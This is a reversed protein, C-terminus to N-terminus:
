LKKGRLRLANTVVFISSLSMALAGIMPSLLLGLSPYLIGAAIPIGLINYFFAWFLNQKINRITLRSLKIATHVDNLDSKMLVLEASEIAVDSGSGIACGIDAQALAPADNIGDGVMMVTKGERQLREIVASKDNPLVEAIVEDTGVISGIYRAAASSDGTLLITKIGLARLESIADKSGVKVTDAVSIIGLVSVDKVVLMPIQGQSALRFLDSSYKEVSIGAMEILKVNGVLLTQGNQLKAKIGLGTLNEFSSVSALSLGRVSAEATIAKALPHDSLSEAGAVLALLENESIENSIIETVRPKGETVTGTKDLVVVDAKHTIELAEGSRILIGRTAGLGTGVIIATPTALGMACPCAIVLISTFIQLAFSFEEGAILWVALAIVAIAIVIPVFVGAVRDAIKSIPAKKGQADEIFKIIKSLTTEEGVRTIEAFVAGSVLISGGIIESGVSKEVPMSEGTLMAEDSSGEGKTVRGDLPVKSGSKVLVLDGKKLTDTPVEWQKDELVLIATEPTLEMLKTIAHKTKEKSSEELHKGLLVLTIVIAASEFYLSHIVHPNDTLLFINALSYLFSASCSVAVLTDMNPNWHLLSYFGSIFFRKGIYLIPITLLLETLAFNTPHSEMGIINPLPLSKVLMTGMSVYLLLISLVAATILGRRDELLEKKGDSDSKSERAIEKNRPNATFGAKEIKSIIQEPNVLSEDYVITMRNMPLNVDSREVGELKRTVREIASSCAACHMGGIDYTEEKM